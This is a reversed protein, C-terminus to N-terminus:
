RAVLPSMAVAMSLLEQGGLQAGAPGTGVGDGVVDLHQGLRDGLDPGGVAPMQEDTGISGAGCSRSSQSVVAPWTQPRRNSYETPNAIVSGSRRAILRIGSCM